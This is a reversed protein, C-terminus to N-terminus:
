EEDTAYSGGQVEKIYKEYLDTAVEKVCIDNADDKAWVKDEVTLFVMYEDMVTPLIFMKVTLNATNPMWFIGNFVDGPALPSGVEFTNLDKWEGDPLRWTQRAGTLLLPNAWTGYLQELISEAYEYTKDSM